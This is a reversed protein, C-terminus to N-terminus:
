STEQPAIKEVKQLLFTVRRSRLRAATDASAGAATGDQVRTGRGGGSADRMGRMAPRGCTENHWGSGTRDPFVAAQGDTKAM